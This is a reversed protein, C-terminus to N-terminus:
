AVEPLSTEASDAATPGVPPPSLGGGTTGGSEALPSAQAGTPQPTMAQTDVPLEGDDDDSVVRGVMEIAEIHIRNLRALAMPYQDSTTLWGLRQLASKKDPNLFGFIHSAVISPVDESKGPQFLYPVGDYMGEIPADSTNTVRVYNM